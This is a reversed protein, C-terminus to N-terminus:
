KITLEYEGITFSDGRKLLASKEKPVESGDALTLPNQGQADLTFSQDANKTLKAHLRSISEDGTLRVDSEKGRGITASPKFVPRLESAVGRKVQLSFHKVVTPGDEKPLVVTPPEEDEDLLSFQGPKVLITKEEVEDWIAQALVQGVELTADVRLELTIPALQAQQQGVLELARERIANYLGREMARRKEGHWQNDDEPNLFVLYYRPICTPEGYPTFAERRMVAEIARAITLFLHEAQSPPSPQPNTIIEAEAEPDADDLWHRFKELWGTKM